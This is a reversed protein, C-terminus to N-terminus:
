GALVPVPAARLARWIRLARAFFAGSLLGYVLSAGAAFALDAALPPTRVLAVTVAYKIFFVSLMLALPWWSGPVRVGAGDASRAVGAPRALLAGAAVAAGWGLGWALLDAARAGFTTVVGNLSLVLMAAPLLTVRWLPVSRARSQTYGLYLLALFLGAVWPPTHRLTDILM